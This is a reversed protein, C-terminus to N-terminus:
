SSTASNDPEEPQLERVKMAIRDADSLAQQAKDKFSQENTFEYQAMLSKYAHTGSSVGADSFSASRNPVRRRVELVHYTKGLAL